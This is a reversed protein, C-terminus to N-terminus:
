TTINMMNEDSNLSDDFKIEKNDDDIDRNASM